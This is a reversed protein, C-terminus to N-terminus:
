VSRGIFERLAADDVKGTAGVPLESVVLIHRPLQFGALNARCLENLETTVAVGDVKATAVVAVPIEGLREDPYPIVRVQLVSSSQAIVSEIEQAAVNEGGVRIMDKIRGTRNLLGWSDVYGLDGTRFRGWSDFCTEAGGTDGLYGRFVCWGGLRIEGTQGTPLDYETSPDTIALEIGTYPRGHTHLRVEASDGLHASAGGLHTETMGYPSVTTIALKEEIRRRIPSDGIVFAGRVTSMRRRAQPAALYDVWHPQHGLILTCRSAEIMDLATDAKFFDQVVATCGTTIPSNMVQVAGGAHFFPQPSFFRDAEGVELCQNVYFSGRLAGEHTLLAAKPRGTSGSTHLMLAIGDGLETSPEAPRRFHVRIGELPAPLADGATPAVHSGPLAALALDVRAQIKRDASAIGTLDVIARADCRVIHERLETGPLRTNLPAIIGGARAIGYYIQPWAWHGAMVVAVRDGPNLGLNRLRTSVWDAGDLVERYSLKGEPFIFATANPTANVADCLANYLTTESWRDRFKM